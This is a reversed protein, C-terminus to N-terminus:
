NPQFGGPNGVPPPDAPKPKSEAGGEMQGELFYETRGFEVFNDTPLAYSGQLPKVLRPTIIFLLETRDTQFQSSRFLAGLVPVEGLVPFAKITETVNNSILGGIAFTEGDRLQVTTSARRTTITPLVSTLGGSSSVPTGLQSLQSVEPTVHLNIRGEDLVTPTFRLGVGFEKEVLTIVASGGTVSQAVPIFIVGGSLFSGEQGSVAIITPEALIKVLGKQVEADLTLASNNSPSNVGVAGSSGTLFQTILTFATKGGSTLSGSFQVGLSDILTKEVEAVKVELMVQQPADVSLLNVVKKGGSYIEALTVLRQAKMSDSVRGSLVVSDALSELKFASESPVLERLKGKLTTTDVDVLVDMISARGGKIWVLVNTTGVKKGLLYVERPNILMVDAVDPNGVSLRAADGPLRVLASKGATLRMSPAVDTPGSHEAAQAGASQPINTSGAATGSGADPTKALEGGAAGTSLLGAVVLARTIRVAPRM